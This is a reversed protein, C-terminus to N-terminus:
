RIQDRTQIGKQFFGVLQIDLFGRFNGVHTLLAPACDHNFPRVGPLQHGFDVTEVDDAQRVVLVHIGIVFQHYEAAAFVALEGVHNHALLFLQQILPLLQQLVTAFVLQLGAPQVVLFNHTDFVWAPIVRQPSAVVKVRYLQLQLPGHLVVFFAKHTFVGNFFQRM